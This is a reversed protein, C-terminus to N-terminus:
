IFRAVALGIEYLGWVPLALFTQSIVDPAVFMGFVFALVIVYRRASKLQEYSLIGTRVLLSVVIPIEFILGFAFFLKLTFSLYANIETMIAVGSPASQAFFHFLLPFIIWYAFLMGSYFLISGFILLPWVLQREQRYLGPAIFMWIHYLFIPMALIFAISIALKLPVILPATVTIAIMQGHPPLNHLLPLAYIHYIERAYYLLPMALITVLLFCYILRRRLETLHELWNNEVIM